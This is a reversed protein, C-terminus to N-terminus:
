KQIIKGARPYHSLNAKICDSMKSLTDKCMDLGSGPEDSPHNHVCELGARLLPACPGQRIEGLCPCEWDIPKIKPPVTDKPHRFFVHHQVAAPLSVGPPASVAAM